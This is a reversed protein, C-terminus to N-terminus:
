TRKRLRPTMVFNVGEGLFSFALVLMMRAIGPFVALWWATIHSQAVNLIQGWSVQNPDSLGLFSLSAETLIANRIQLTSNVIVPYIGNPLIHRFMIRVHSAGAGTAALVYGRSKLSLVQARTIRANSPWLTLGVIVMAFVINAGFISVVLITLFLTPIMLYIEFFRSFLDDIHGGFYGPIAGLVIGMLLSIGSVGAGFLLSVRTGWIIRSLLDRGLNDTGLLHRGSPPLFLLDSQVFPDYPSIVPALAALGTSIVLIILGLM